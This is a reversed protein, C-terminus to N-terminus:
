LPAACSTTGITGLSENILANTKSALEFHALQDADTNVAGPTGLTKLTQTVSKQSTCLVQRVQEVLGQRQSVSSTSQAVSGAFAIAPALQNIDTISRSSITTHLGGLWKKVIENPVDPLVSSPTEGVLVGGQSFETISRNLAANGLAVLANAQAESRVKAETQVWTQLPDTSDLIEAVQCNAKKCLEQLMFILSANAKEQAQNLLTVNSKGVAITSFLSGAAPKMVHNLSVQTVFQSLLGTVSERYAKVKEPSLSGDTNWVDLTNQGSIQAEFSDKTASFPRWFGLLGTYRAPLSRTSLYSKNGLFYSVVNGINNLAALAEKSAQTNQTLIENADAMGSLAKVFQAELRELGGRLTLLGNVKSSNSTVRQLIVDMGQAPNSFNDYRLCLPDRGNQFNDAQADNCFPLVPFAEPTSKIQQAQNYVVDIFQRDYPLVKGVTPDIAAGSADTNSFLEGDELQPPNYDMVSNSYLWDQTGFKKVDAALSGKFNHEMGLAHGVEHLLTSRMLARGAQEPTKAYAELDGLAARYDVTRSCRIKAKSLFPHVPRSTTTEKQNRVVRLAQEMIERPLVEGENSAAPVNSNKAFNYWAFPMYILSHSQLGTIPDFSQSEYAAGADAVADFQIVSYRPDGLKANEPLYGKFVMVPKEKRFDNFYRNWGEVGAKFDPLLAEPLNRTVYWEITKNESIDFRTVAEQPTKTVGSNLDTSAPAEFSPAGFVGVRSLPDMMEGLAKSGSRFLAKQSDGLNGRVVAAETFLFLGGSVDRLTTELILSNDNADFEISRLWGERSASAEVAWYKASGSGPEVLRLTVESDSESTVDFELMNDTVAFDSEVLHSENTLLILRNGARQFKGLRHAGGALSLMNSFGLSEDQFSAFQLDSNFAYQANLLNNYQTKTLTLDGSVKTESPTVNSPLKSGLDPTQSSDESGQVNVSETSKKKKSSKNGQCSIGVALMALGYFFANRVRM